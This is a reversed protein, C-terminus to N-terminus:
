NNENLWGFARFLSTNIRGKNSRIAGYSKYEIEVVKFNNMKKIAEQLHTM